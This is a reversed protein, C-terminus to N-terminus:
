DEIKAKAAERVLAVQANNFNWNAVKDYLRMAEATEGAGELAMAHHFNVYIDDPDAQAFHQAAEEHNGRELSVVGLLEHVPQNKQPDTDPELIDKAENAKQVALDFDGQRAALHGDTLAITARTNRRAVATGAIEAQEQMLANRREIAERAVDFMEHHLAITIVTNLAFVKPGRPNPLGMGDIESVLDRLEQIAAEPNGEHVNVLARWVAFSAATNEGEELEIARDYDARAADYDGLFSHVHGRQQYGSGDEPAREIAHTYHEAAKDLQGQARYADGLLDHPGAEDPAIQVLKEAHQQAKAFDLPEVFLYSNTLAVHLPALDPQLEAARLLTERAKEDDGMDSQAFSLLMLARANSPQIEVLKRATELRRADEGRFNLVAAEIMLREAESAESAKESATELHQKFAEFSPAAFAMNLHAMAFDPDADIAQELHGRADEQRGMDLAHQGALFHQLAADSTTTFSITEYALSAPTFEREEQAVAPFAWLILLLGAVVLTFRKM